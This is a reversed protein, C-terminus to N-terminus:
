NLFNNLNGNTVFILIAEIEKLNTDFWEKGPVNERWKGRAKLTNHIALETPKMRNVAWYGLIKPQEFGVQFFVKQSPLHLSLIPLQLM